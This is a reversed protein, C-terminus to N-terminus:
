DATMAADFPSNEWASSTAADPDVFVNICAPRGSRMAREFAPRFEDPREVFEGHCGLIHAIQEYRIGHEFMTVREPYDHPFFDKHKLSGCLGHNNAVIVIVPIGQRVCTELELASIGFGFDGCLAVVPRSPSALKAGAAFPIGVGMCGNTGADLRSAPVSSPIVRQAAMMSVNGDTVLISEPPLVERLQNSLAAPSMPTRAAPRDRHSEWESRADAVQRQWEGCTAADDSRVSDLGRLLQCVGEGADGHLAIAPECNRGIESRDIELQIIRAAGLESGFRFMWNLRAGIVLVVDARSQVFARISNCCLFHSDSILQLQEASVSWRAGKGLILLPRDARDLLEVAERVLEHDCEQPPPTSASLGTLDPKEVRNTLIDEPLELFVPGPRDCISRRFASQLFEPIASTTPITASWKTISEFVPVANLEQFYGVGHGEVPRRGALVLVPWANDYAVCIGTTASTVAPGASVIVAATLKGAVYNQAVAMHVAAQQHHVGIIRVGHRALAPLIGDIPTGSVSYVHTIGLCHLSEAVLAVGDVLPQSLRKRLLARKEPSLAAIRESADKGPSANLSPKKM